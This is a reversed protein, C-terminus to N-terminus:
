SRKKWISIVEERRWLRRSRWFSRSARRLLDVFRRLLRKKIHM